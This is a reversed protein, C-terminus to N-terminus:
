EIILNAISGKNWLVTKGCRAVVLASASVGRINDVQNDLIGSVIVDHLLCVVIQMGDISRVALRELYIISRYHYLSFDLQENSAGLTGFLDFVMDVVQMARQAPKDIKNIVVIPRLGLELSKKLVFKTQPMPGEQADVLLLVCDVM